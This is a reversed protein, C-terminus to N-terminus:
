RRQFESSAFLLALAESEDRAVRLRRHTTPKLMPGLVYLALDPVERGDPPRSVGAIEACWEVRELLLEPTVWSLSSYPWGDPTPPQYPPQGLFRIADLLRRGTRSRVDLARLVSLVLDTPSKVKRQVPEWAESAEVLARAMGDARGGGLVFGALIESALSPDPDDVVFAQAMRHSLNKGTTSSRALHDLAAEGELVGADPYTRRLFEKFNGEHWSDRFAFKGRTAPNNVGVTWGTLMHALARVDLQTYGSGEGLTFHELLQRALRDNLPNKRGRGAVSSPGLSNVNDLYILMAPHSVVAQLMSYFSKFINPRIAEREFAPVLPMVAPKVMSVTFHNTWFRVLREVFPTPSNLSVALHTAAETLARKRAEQRYVRMNSRGKQRAALMDVLLEHSKPLSKLAEPVPDAIMQGLLWERPQDGIQQLDHPRAGYGFRTAAIAADVEYAEFAEPYERVM